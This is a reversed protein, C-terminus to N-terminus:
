GGAGRKRGRKKAKARKRGGEIHGPLRAAFDAWEEDTLEDRGQGTLFRMAGPSSALVRAFGRVVPNEMDRLFQEQAEVGERLVKDIALSRSEGRAGAIVDIRSLVDESVTISIKVKGMHEIIRGKGVETM